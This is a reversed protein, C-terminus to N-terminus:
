DNPREEADLANFLADAHKCALIAVVTSRAEDREDMIRALEAAHPGALMGQMAATERKTLGDVWLSTGGTTLQESGDAGVVGAPMDRNRM